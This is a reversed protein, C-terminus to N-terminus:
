NVRQFQDHHQFFIVADGDLVHFFAPRRELGDGGKGGEDVGFAGGLHGHASRDDGTEADHGRRAAARFFDPLGDGGARAPQFWQAEKLRRAVTLNGDAFDALVEGREARGRATRAAVLESPEGRAVGKGIGFYIQGCEGVAGADREAAGDAAREVAFVKEGCEDFAAFHAGSGRAKVFAMGGHVEDGIVEPKVAGAHGDGGRARRAREGDGRRRFEDHAALRIHHEGAARIRERQHRPASEM